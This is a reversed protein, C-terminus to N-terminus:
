WMVLYCIVVLKVSHQLMFIVKDLNLVLRRIITTTRFM